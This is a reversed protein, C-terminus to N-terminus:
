EPNEEPKRAIINWETSRMLIRIYGIVPATKLGLFKRYNYAHVKRGMMDRFTDSYLARADSESMGGVRTSLALAYSELGTEGIAAVVLGLEKLKPDKPWPGGIVCRRM